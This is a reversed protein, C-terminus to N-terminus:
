RRRVVLAGFIASVAGAIAIGAGAGHAAVLSGISLPGIAGGFYQATAVFAAVTGHTAEPTAATWLAVGANAVTHALGFVSICLALVPVPSSAGAALAILVLALGQFMLGAGLVPPEGHDAAIARALRRGAFATLGFAAFLVATGLPTFSRTERLYLSLLLTGTVGTATVAAGAAILPLHRAPACTGASTSRASAVLVLATVV